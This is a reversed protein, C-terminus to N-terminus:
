RSLRAFRRRFTAGCVPCTWEIDVPVPPVCDLGYEHCSQEVQECSIATWGDFLRLPVTLTRKCDQCNTTVRTQDEPVSGAYHDDPVTM